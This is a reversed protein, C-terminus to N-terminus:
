QVAGRVVRFQYTHLNEVQKSPTRQLLKVVYTGVEFTSASVAVVLSEPKTASPWTADQRWVERGGPTEIVVRYSGVTEPVDLGLELFAMSVGRGITLQPLNENTRTSGPTLSLAVISGGIPPFPESGPPTKSQLQQLADSLRDARARETESVQRAGRERESLSAQEVAANELRSRLRWNDVVLGISMIVVLASALVWRNGPKQTLASLWDSWRNHSMVSVPSVSSEAEQDIRGIAETVTRALRVKERGGPTALFHREFAARETSSLQDRVYAHVLDAQEEMLEAFLADDEFCRAELDSEEEDTLGGLYYRKLQAQDM